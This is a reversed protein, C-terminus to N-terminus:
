EQPINAERIVRAWAQYQEATHSATEAPTAVQPEAGMRSVQERIDPRSLVTTLERSLRTVVDRLMGAPGFMGLWPKITVGPMGAEAITPVEPALSSRQPLLVALMRLRGDRAQALAPTPAMFAFQIRGGMLDATAPADGKYPIHNIDLKALMRFQATAVIAGTNGTGYNLKGPNARAYDVLEALTKVPLAPPVFLFFSPYGIMGIATFDKVPDYPPTKRLAPAASLPSNTGFFLTHGDAAAKIVIGAALVGDAGPRNDILWQQGMAQTMHLGVVRAVSDATGGPPFPVIFRIPRSPYQAQAPIAAALTLMVAFLVFPKM